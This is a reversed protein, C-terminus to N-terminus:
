VTREVSQASRIAVGPLGGSALTRAAGPADAPGALRLEVGQPLMGAFGADLIGRQMLSGVTDGESFDGSQKILLLTQATLKGALWAALSDSTVDWSERIDHAELAMCSPLWVPIRGAALAAQMEPLSRAGVLRPRGDAVPQEDLILHAFQEMALVAMAHAARDSFGMDAQAARVADAFPGGGPVIVLSLAAKALAAIWVPGQAEHSTSGGLKVVALPAFKVNSDRNADLMTEFALKL